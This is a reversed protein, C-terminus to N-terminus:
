PKPLLSTWNKTLRGPTLAAEVPMGKALRKAIVTRGLNLRRTWEPIPLTEGQHTLWTSRKDIRPIHAQDAGLGREWRRVLTERCVKGPLRAAQAATITEGQVVLKRCFQRRNMQPARETWITNEPTYHASTDKRALWHTPSPPLGVDKLFNEFSALWQPCIKIGAGGYRPFSKFGPELCRRKMVRWASLARKREPTNQSKSM